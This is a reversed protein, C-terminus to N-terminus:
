GVSARGTGAEMRGRAEEPSVDQVLTSIWWHHGEPVARTM